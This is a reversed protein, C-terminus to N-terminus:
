STLTEFKLKKTESALNYEGSSVADFPATNAM